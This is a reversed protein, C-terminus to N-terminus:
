VHRLECQLKKKLFEVQIDNIYHRIEGIRGWFLGKNLGPLHTEQRAQIQIRRHKLLLQQTDLCEAGLETIVVREDQCQKAWKGVSEAEHAFLLGNCLGASGGFWKLLPSPGYCGVQTFQHLGSDVRARTTDEEGAHAGGVDIKRALFVFAELTGIIQM